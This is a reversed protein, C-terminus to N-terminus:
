YNPFPFFAIGPLLCVRHLCPHMFCRTNLLGCVFIISHFCLKDSVKIGKARLSEIEEESPNNTSKGNDGEENAKLTALSIHLYEFEKHEECLTKIISSKGSGFPGTLAVNRIEGNEIARGLVDKLESVTIRSPDNEELIIPLLSKPM